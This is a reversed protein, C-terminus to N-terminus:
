GLMNWANQRTWVNVVERADATEPKSKVIRPNCICVRFQERVDSGPRVTGVWQALSRGLMTPNAISCGLLPGANHRVDDANNSRACLGTVDEEAEWACKWTCYRSKNKFYESSISTVYL